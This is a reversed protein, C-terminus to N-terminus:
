FTNTDSPKWTGCVGLGFGKEGMVSSRRRCITNGELNDGHWNLAHALQTADEKTECTFYYVSGAPVALHASRAKYATDKNATDKYVAYGTVPIPKGTLAAVLTAKIEEGSTKKSRTAANKGAGSLLLVKGDDQSIWSPLWGGKHEGIVPFIAPTLLIWKVYFLNNESHFSSLGMPLPLKVTETKQVRCVRRQGGVIIHQEQTFLQDLLDQTDNRKDLAQCVLGMQCSDRLRLYHASYIKGNEVAGLNDDISIGYHHEVDAFDSDMKFNNRKTNTENKLYSDWAAQNWWQAIKEKDPKEENMVAMSLPMPLTSHSKIITPHQTAQTSDSKGADLPRPFYWEHDAVPFPGATTLCGFKKDGKKSYKGSVGIRHPLANKLVDGARHLAAHLAANTVTPLPWSSGHGSLSGDMPRGDRFFFVDTPQLLLTKM